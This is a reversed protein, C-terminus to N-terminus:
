KVSEEIEEDTWESPIQATRPCMNNLVCVRCGSTTNECIQRVAKLAQKVIDKDIMKGSDGCGYYVWM